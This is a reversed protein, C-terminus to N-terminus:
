TRCDKIITNYQKFFHPSIAPVMMLIYNFQPSIVMKIVNVKGWLTLRIKEWKDLNSKIKQLIPELNSAPIEEVDQSLKIGLYKMGNSVWKFGFNTVSNSHCLGSIAESKTWNIKYGSLISYSKIIDMLHPISNLPDKVLMLIDDAYLLLKHEKGSLDVGKINGNGRVAIALPELVINFLLPSLPCGQHTGRTLNFLPSILGNTKVAGKPSIYLTKIWSIFTQRFGFHSLAAFLFEWQVQDFAKEADLSLAVVSDTGTRNSWILHLLRTMNDTSTRNKMFGVQDPHIISPLASELCLVLIKTLIKCDVNILSLPRYNAPDVADRDKKPIVSILAEYFTPPITGLTFAENYVDKLIPALIDVYMNSIISQKYYEIQETSLKPMDINIFFDTLEDQQPNIDSTYLEKYFQQLVENIEKTSSM